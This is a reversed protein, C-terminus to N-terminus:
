AGRYTGYELQPYDSRGDVDVLGGFQNLGRPDIPYVNVNARQAAAIAQQADQVLSSATGRGFPQYIDYDLGESFFLLAKRRGQVDAMWAAVKEISQLARRANLGREADDPDQVQRAREASENTRAPQAEDSLFTRDAEERVHVALKELGASPLKRGQFRDIAAHLLRRSGTLEQGAEQRGSTYVVAALDDAGLYRQVFAKAADRVQQSRRFDTHLDDLLFIYLRGDFTHRALRVDPEPVASDTGARAPRADIPLDILSFAAPKQVRGDELIEFDDRSLDRVFAGREDTVIAHVEVFNIETRFTVAPSQGETAPSSSQRASGGAGCCLAFLLAVLVRRM